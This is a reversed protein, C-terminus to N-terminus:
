SDCLGHSMFDGVKFPVDELIGLPYKMSHDVLQRSINTPRLERLCTEQSHFLADFECM